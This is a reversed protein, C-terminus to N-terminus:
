KNIDKKDTRHLLYDISVNFMDAIRILVDTPIYTIRREYDSYTQQSCYLFKSMDKQTLKNDERLDRLRDLKLDRM